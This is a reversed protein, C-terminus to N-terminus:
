RQNAHTLTVRIDGRWPHTVLIKFNLAQVTRPDAVDITQDIGTLVGDPIAEDGSGDFSLVTPESSGAADPPVAPEPVDLCAASVCALIVACRRLTSMM